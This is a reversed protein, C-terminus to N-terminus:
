TLRSVIRRGCILDGVAQQRIFKLHQYPLRPRKFVKGSAVATKWGEILFVGPFIIFRSFSPIAITNASHTPRNTYPACACPPLVGFLCDPLSDLVCYRPHRDNPPPGSFM